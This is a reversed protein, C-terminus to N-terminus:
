GFREPRYADQFHEIDPRGQDPWIVIVVDFRAPRPPAGAEMLFFRAAQFLRQRQGTSVADQPDQFDGSTRTKVEVFVITERDTCILDVEGAPCRYNRAIIRLRRRKLHRAAAREGRRGLAHRRDPRRLWNLRPLSNRIFAFNM